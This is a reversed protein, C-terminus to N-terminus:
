QKHPHLDDKVVITMWCGQDNARAITAMVRHKKDAIEKLFANAEAEVLEDTGRFIKVYTM